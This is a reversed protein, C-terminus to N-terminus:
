FLEQQAVPIAGIPNALYHAIYEHGFLREALGRAFALRM